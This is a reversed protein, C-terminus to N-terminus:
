DASPSSDHASHRLAGGFRVGASLEIAAAVEMPISAAINGALQSLSLGRYEPSDEVLGIIELGKEEQRTSTRFSNLNAFSISGLADAHWEIVIQPDNIAPRQWLNSDVTIRMDGDPTMRRDKVCLLCSSRPKDTSIINNKVTVDRVIWTMEPDPTVRRLDRGPILPDSGVRQDQIINIGKYNHLIDNNWVEVLNTNQIEIASKNNNLFSNNAILVKSSLEVHLGHVKNSVFSSSAVTVGYVSEDFWLGTGNNEGFESELVTVGRSRTIKCGGAAPAFNFNETNNNWVRVSELRLDDAETAHIGVFGNGTSRVDVITVGAANISLGVTSNEVFDVDRIQTRRASPSVYVAGMDPVSPAYRRVGVGELTSDPGAIVFAKSLDSARAERGWPNTGSYISNQEYDVYFTGHRLESRSAVQSLEAGDIWFQDPHAAMPYNESVFRWSETTNDPAGRTYTPSHDFKATWNRHVWSGGSWEWGELITSGDFWVAEDKYSRITVGKKEPVLVSEHYVGARILVWGGMAAKAVASGVTALPSELTGSASDSGTPAVFM